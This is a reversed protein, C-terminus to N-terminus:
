SGDSVETSVDINEKSQLLRTFADASLPKSIHYGQGIDCGMAWLRRYQTADEIGEAIVRHGTSKALDIINAVIALDVTNNMLGFVFSKDVKLTQFPFLKIDELGLYGTGFDDVAFSVGLKRLTNMTDKAVLKDALLFSETIELELLNAPFDLSVLTTEVVNVLDSDCLQQTSLNVSIKLEPYDLSQWHKAQLCASYIVWKGVEVISKNREMIPIFESPAVSGIDPHQWRLLAEVGVIAGSQMDVQGQYCLSFQNFDINGALEKEILWRRRQETAMRAEYYHYKDSNSSTADRAIEAHQLLTEPEVNDDSVAIGIKVPVAVNNDKCPLPERFKDVIGSVCADTANEQPLWLGFSTEDVRALTASRPCAELLRCAANAILEEKAEYGLNKAISALHELGISILVHNRDQELDLSIQQMLSTRNSLGTLDDLKTQVKAGNLLVLYDEANGGSTRATISIPCVLYHGNAHRVLTDGKWFGHEHVERRVKNANKHNFAFHNRLFDTGVLESQKCGLLQECGKNAQAVYGHADLVIMAEQVSDYFSGLLRERQLDSHYLFASEVHRAVEANDWPKGLFKYIAGGNISATLENFDSYGSLIMRVTDPYAQRVFSLFVAGSMGPMRQDSLVVQAPQTKLVELGQMGSEAELVQYGETKLTRRLACRVSKEDDVVLVTQM